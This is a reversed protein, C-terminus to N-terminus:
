NFIQKPLYNNMQQASCVVLYKLNLFSFDTYQLRSGGVTHLGTGGIFHLFFSFFYSKFFTEELLETDLIACKLDDIRKVAHREM